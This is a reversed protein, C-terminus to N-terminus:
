NQDITQQIEVNLTSIYNIKLYVFFDLLTITMQFSGHPPQMKKLEKCSQLDFSKLGRSVFTGEMRRSIWEAMFSRSCVMAAAPLGEAWHAPLESFRSPVSAPSTPMVPHLLRLPCRIFSSAKDVLAM